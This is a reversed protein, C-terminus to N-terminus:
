TAQALAKRAAELGAKIVEPPLLDCVTHMPTPPIRAGQAPPGTELWRVQEELTLNEPMTAIRGAHDRRIGSVVARVWYDPNQVGTTREREALKRNALVQIAEMPDFNM